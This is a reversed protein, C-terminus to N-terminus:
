DNKRRADMILSQNGAEMIEILGPCEKKVQKWVDAPNNETIAKPYKTKLEAMCRDFKETALDVKSKVRLIGNKDDKQHERKIETNLYVLENSCFCIKNALERSSLMSGEEAMEMDDYVKVAPYELEIKEEAKTEGKDTMNKVPSPVSPIQNKQSCAATLFVVAFIMTWKM